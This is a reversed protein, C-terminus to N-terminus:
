EQNIGHRYGKILTETFGHLIDMCFQEYNDIHQRKNLQREVIGTIYVSIDFHISSCIKEDFGKLKEENRMLAIIDPYKVEIYEQGSNYDRMDRYFAPSKIGQRLIENNREFYGKASSLENVVKKFIEEILTERSDFNSYIPMVSCGVYKALERMSLKYFGVKKSLEIAKKLILEKSYLKKKMIESGKWYLTKIVVTVFSIQLTVM